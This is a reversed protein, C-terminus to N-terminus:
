PKSCATSTLLWLNKPIFLEQSLLTSALIIRLSSRKAHKFETEQVKIGQSRQKSLYIGTAKRQYHVVTSQGAKGVTSTSQRGLPAFYEKLYEVESIWDAIEAPTPPRQPLIRSLKEYNM